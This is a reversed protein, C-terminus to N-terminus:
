RSVTMPRRVGDAGETVTVLDWGGDPRQVGGLVDGAVDAVVGDPPQSLTMPAAPKLILPDISPVAAASAVGDDGIEIPVTVLSPPQRVFGGDATSVLSRVLVEVAFHTPAVQTVSRARAWDVYVQQGEAAEPLPVGEPLLSALVRRSEDSGDVAMYEMAVWEAHSTARDILREPDVAFLDAEAVVVPGPVTSVLPSLTSAPTAAPLTTTVVAVPEPQTATPQNRMFSYALAGLVVAGAVAYVLWQRDGGKRELTEWPIREYTEEREPEM